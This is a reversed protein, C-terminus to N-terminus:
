NRAILTRMKSGRNCAVLVVVVPARSAVEQQALRAGGGVVSEYVDRRRRLRLSLRSRLMLRPRRRRFLRPGLGDQGFRPLVALVGRGRCRCCTFM